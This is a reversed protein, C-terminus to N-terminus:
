KKVVKVTAASGQATTVKIFYTGATAGHLNIQNNGNFIGQQIQQGLVNYVEYNQLTEPTEINVINNTPNPYVNVTVNNFKDTSVATGCTSAGLKAVFFDYYGISGLTSVGGGNTFLSGQYAGGMVYNGDNDVALATLMHNKGTSGQIEHIGVVAGTQKNFRMLLPDSEHGQPRNISFGDWITNSGMTAFAIENANNRLALGYGYYQRTDATPLNYGSPTRAWQVAGSSNLKAIFPMNGNVSPSFSYPNNTPNKSNIIKIDTGNKKNLKGGIYIDGNANDVVLDYIRCDDTDAAMERRWIENGNGANIALIYSVKTFATGAYSLPFPTNFGGESRFGGIYYRNNAEDLRFSTYPDVLQSGYDIPLEMSGLLQGSNTYRVLYYKLKDSANYQSPVTVTNNLHSGYLFGAIFHINDNSDIIIDSISSYSNDNTVDGQLARKWIFQGSTDYKVLFTSKFYDSVTTPTAPPGPLAETPSFHVPKNIVGRMVSAGVYLNNNSDLAIKYATDFAAGGGIAQSWRVTGDCTTSFLFIDNGNGNNGYETVPQGNLQPNSGTISAVYYYNNNQDIAIDYIQESYITWSAGSLGAGSSGGNIAWQWQYPQATTPISFLSYLISFLLIKFTPTKRISVGVSHCVPHSAASRCPETVLEAYCPTNNKHLQQQM